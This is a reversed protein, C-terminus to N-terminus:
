PRLDNLGYKTAWWSLKSQSPRTTYGLGKKLANDYCKRFKVGKVCWATAEVCQREVFPIAVGPRDRGFVLQYPGFGTDVDIADHHLRIELSLLEVLSQEDGKGVVTGRLLDM